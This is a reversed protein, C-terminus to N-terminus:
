SKPNKAPKAGARQFMKAAEAPSMESDDDDHWEVGIERATKRSWATRLAKIEAPM